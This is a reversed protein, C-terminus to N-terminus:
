RGHPAGARAAVWTAAAMVMVVAVEGAEMGVAVSERMAGETVM